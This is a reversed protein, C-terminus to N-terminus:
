PTVGVVAIFLTDVHGASSAFEVELSASADAAIPAIASEHDIWTAPSRHGTVRDRPHVQGHQRGGHRGPFRPPVPRHESAPRHGRRRLGPDMLDADHFGDDAASSAKAAGNPVANAALRDM